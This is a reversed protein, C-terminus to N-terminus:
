RDFEIRDGTATPPKTCKLYTGYYLDFQDSKPKKEVEGTVTYENAHQFSMADSYQECELKIKYGGRTQLLPELSLTNYYGTVTVEDGEYDDPNLAVQKLTTKTLGINEGEKAWDECQISAVEEATDPVCSGGADQLCKGVPVKHDFGYYHENGDVQCECRKYTGVEGKVKIEEDHPVRCSKIYVRSNNEGKLYSEGVGRALNITGTTGKVTMKQGDYQEINSTVQEPTKVPNLTNTLQSLDYQYESPEFIDSINDTPTATQLGIGLLIVALIWKYSIGFFQNKRRGM